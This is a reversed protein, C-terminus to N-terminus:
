IPILALAVRRGEDLLVVHSRCAAPTVMAEHAIDAEDLTEEMTEPLFHMEAGTGIVILDVEDALAVLPAVDDMGGWPGVRSPTVLTAGRHVQGGVRFFGPGYGQVILNGPPTVEHIQM